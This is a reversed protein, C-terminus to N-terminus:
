RSSVSSVAEQWSVARMQSPNGTRLRLLETWHSVFNAPSHYRVFAEREVSETFRPSLDLSRALWRSLTSVDSTDCTWGLKFTSITWGMTGSANGLVPRGAAAAEIVVGSSQVPRPHTACVVDAASLADRFEERGLYRDIAIIRGKSVDRAHRSTLLDGIEPDITGILLLRDTSGFDGAEFAALLSDCGKRVSVMGPCVLYRGEAPIGLATRAEKKSVSAPALIPDPVLRMTGRFRRGRVLDAVVPNLTFTRSWGARKTTRLSKDRRWLSRLSRVPLGAPSSLLLAEITRGARFLSSSTLGSAAGVVRTLRDASMLYVHDPDHKRLADRLEILELPGRESPPLYSADRSTAALGAPLSADLAFSGSLDALNKAYEAAETVGEPLVLTLESALESLAPVLLRLYALHHGRVRPEFVAVRYAV